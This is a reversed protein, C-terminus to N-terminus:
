PPYKYSIIYYSIEQRLVWVKEVYHEQSLMLGDITKTIKIRLIVYPEGINKLDFIFALMGKTESAYGNSILVKNFKENYQKPIEKLGNLSKVLKCVKKSLLQFQM